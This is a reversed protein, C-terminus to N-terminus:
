SRRKPEQLIDKKKNNKESQSKRKKIMKMKQSAPADIGVCRPIEGLSDSDILLTVAVLVLASLAM